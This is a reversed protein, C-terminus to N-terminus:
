NWKVAQTENIVTVADLDPTIEDGFQKKLKAPSKLEVAGLGYKDIFRSKVGFDDIPATKTRRTTTGVRNFKHGADLRLKLEKDIDKIRASLLKGLYAMEELSEDDTKALLEPTMQAFGIVQGDSDVIKIENM